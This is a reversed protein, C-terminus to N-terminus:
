QTVRGISWRAAFVGLLHQTLAVAGKDYAMKSWDEWRDLREALWAFFDDRVHEDSFSQSWLVRRVPVRAGTSMGTLTVLHLRPLFERAFVSPLHAVDREFNRLTREREEDATTRGANRVAAIVDAIPLSMWQPERTARLMLLVSRGLDSLPADLKHITSAANLLGVSSLWCMYFRWFVWDGGFLDDWSQLGHHWRADQAELVRSLLEYQEAVFHAPPFNLHGAWFAERVSRWRRGEADEVFSGNVRL